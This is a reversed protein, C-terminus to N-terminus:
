ALTVALAAAAPLLIRPEFFADPLPLRHLAHLGAPWLTHAVYWAASYGALLGRTVLGHQEATAMAADRAQGVMAIWMFPIVLALVPLKELVLRRLGRAHAAERLPGLDLVVLLAPMVIASAKALLSLALMALVLAYDRANPRTAYRWWALLALFFFPAALVDRRETCWVVSEVRLPHLAFLLAVALAGFGALESRAAPTTLARVGTPGSSPAPPASSGPDSRDLLDALVRRALFYLAVAGACHLLLNTRHYVRADMGGLAHDLAYSLWSLPQYPGLLTTTFMWRLHEFSFGRYALNKVLLDGDDWDLFEADLAPAFTLWAAVVILALHAITSRRRSGADTSGMAIVPSYPDM